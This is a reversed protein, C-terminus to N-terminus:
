TGRAKAAAEITLRIVGPTINPRQLATSPVSINFLQKKQTPGPRRAFRASTLERDLLFLSPFKMRFPCHGACPAPRAIPCKKGPPYRLRACRTRTRPLLV